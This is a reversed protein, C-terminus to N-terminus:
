KVKDYWPNLHVLVEEINPYQHMMVQKIQKSIDHGEQISLKADIGVRIDVILYHGHERARIRDIRKIQPFSQILISFEKIQASDINKEMLTDISELGMNYALKMVFLAVIIGAIPDGYALFDIGWHEGILGLGIGIVAALSGYVDALHDHATAILGKSNVQKGVRITYIYLVQKWVLSVIAAIFAIVHAKPIPQFLVEISNYGIYLAAAALVLAVFGAGIVEAKGHGYPHDEDPPQKSIHMSSLTAISAIVDGANHVGDAVLVQSKFIL